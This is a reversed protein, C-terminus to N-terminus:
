RPLISLFSPLPQKQDQQYLQTVKLIFEYEWFQMFERYTPPKGSYWRVCLWDHSFSTFHFYQGVFKRIFKRTEDDAKFVGYLMYTDLELPYVVGDRACSIEPYPPISLIERTSVFHAIRGILLGKKGLLPLRFKNCITKLRRIDVYFLADRLLIVDDEPLSLLSPGTM